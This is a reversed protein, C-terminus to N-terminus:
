VCIFITIVTFDSIFVFINMLFVPKKTRSLLWFITLIDSWFLLSSSHYRLVTIHLLFITKSVSCAIVNLHGLQLRYLTFTVVGLLYRLCCIHRCTVTTMLLWASSLTYHIGFSVDERCAMRPRVLLQNSYLCRLRFARKLRPHIRAYMKRWLACSYLHFSVASALTITGNPVSCWSIIGRSLIGDTHSKNGEIRGRKIMTKLYTENKLFSTRRVSTLCTM